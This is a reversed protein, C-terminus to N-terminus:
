EGLATVIYWFNKKNPLQFYIYQTGFLGEEKKMRMKKSVIKRSKKEKIMFKGDHILDAGIYYLEDLYKRDNNTYNINGFLKLREEDGYSYWWDNLVIKTSDKSLIEKLNTYNNKKFVRKDSEMYLKIDSQKFYITAYRKNIVVIPESITDIVIPTLEQSTIKCYNIQASLNLSYIM